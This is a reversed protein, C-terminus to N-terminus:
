KNMIQASMGRGGFRPQSVLRYETSILSLFHKLREEAWPRNGKERGRLRMQIEVQHGEALFEELKKISIQLDHEAARASIQVTKMGASKQAQREKKEAKEELYRFKDFSMIRAVPPKANPSIEILDLGQEKAMALAEATAFVGVNKGDNGLVRVEPATIKENLKPDPKSIPSSPHVAILCIRAM